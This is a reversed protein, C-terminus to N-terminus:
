TNKVLGKPNFIIRLTLFRTEATFEFDLAKIRFKNSFKKTRKNEKFKSESPAEKYHEIIMNKLIAMVKKSDIYCECELDIQVSTLLQHNHENTFYYIIRSYIEIIDIHYHLSFIEEGMNYSQRYPNSYMKYVEEAPMLFYIDPYGFPISYTLKVSSIYLHRITAIIGIIVIVILISIIIFNTNM